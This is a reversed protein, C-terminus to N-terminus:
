LGCSSLYCSDDEYLVTPGLLVKIRVFGSNILIQALVRTMHLVLFTPLIVLSKRLQGEVKSFPSGMDLPSGLGSWTLLCSGSHSSTGVVLSLISAILSGEVEM